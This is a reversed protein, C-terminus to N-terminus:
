RLRDDKGVSREQWSVLFMLDCAAHWLHPLGSESDLEEGSLWRNLHRKISAAFGRYSGGKWWNPKGDPDNPYKEISNALIRGIAMEFQPDIDGVLPKGDSKHAALKSVTEAMDHFAKGRSIEESIKEDAYSRQQCGLEHPETVVTRCCLRLIDSANAM